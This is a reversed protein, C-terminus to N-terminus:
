PRAALLMKLHTFFAADSFVGDENKEGLAPNLFTDLSAGGFLTDTGADGSLTDVGNEGSLIDNGNGGFLKDTGIGGLITDQGDQGRLLDNGNGGSIIDDGRSGLSDTALDGSGGLITDNGDEGLLVDDDAGGDISDDNAGGRITDNGAAGLLKDNGAQGNLLDDGAGASAQDNGTGGVFTDNGSGGLFTDNAAGGDFTVAFHVRSADFRDTGAGGEFRFSDAFDGLSADLIVSDGSASGVIRVTSIGSALRPTMVERGNANRVHVNDGVQLVTFPGGVKPLTVVLPQSTISPPTPSPPAVPPDFNGVLPIAINSGFQAYLDVGLPTPSFQHDLANVTGFGTALVAPRISQFIYFDSSRTNSDGNRNPVMLGIDDIGDLNFDGAFPRELVGAFLPAQALPVSSSFDIVDDANGDRGDAALDFSFVNSQAHHVGLDDRGDGDFDGVIPLGRLNGVLKTDAATINNDANTDLYWNIGDFLGIEDGPHAANFNGAIPIGNIQLGSVVSYDARGDNNFDLLWRYRNNLLGYSGIRDFGDQTVAGSRNFKGAFQADTDLGMEFVLDRNVFDLNAPDFHFNGNIDISIGGQGVGGIEFRSDITFRSSFDGGPTGDGSPFTPTEQPERAHSEGDLANNAPDTISDEVTLTYRDDLLPSFFNLVATATAPAGNVAPNLTAVISSIPIIGNADGRLVYHGPTELVSELVALYGPFNVADRNPLDRLSITLADTRPTPGASPKPSFLDYAPFATISVGSAALQPGQTDILIDLSQVGSVNGAVDEAIVFIRRTGDLGLGLGPENLNVNSTAVWRGNPHQSTGDPPVATVQALLRDTATQLMGDGNLDVYVRVITDAEATGFFTPNEVRTVRDEFTGPFAHVGSDSAADLGDTASTSLGFYVPPVITDVVIELPLSRSGFGTDTPTAPDIMQVRATLFHSGNELVPTTFTYVGQQATATAFGLLTQPATATQGPTTGEDFIAIRYGPALTTGQFPIPIIQDPPTSTADNGPLDNRLAGDDLRFLLTPTNDRTINDFPSRGTDSNLPTNTLTDDGVPTDQLELAYPVPSPDNIVTMTYNNIAAATAGFVRLYYVQGQVVPVRIREDEAFAEGDLNLEANVGGGDNGGFNPGAGAILTGDRDFLEIDLNGNGPLGPRGSPVTPIEEFFVQLDLTGTVQANFRYFDQDAPLGTAADSGPDITPDINIANGAGLHTALFQLNNFEFPDHKFVAAQGGAALVPEAYEIGQFVAELPEANAPGITMSGNDDSEGKRYLVLDGTGADIVGLRDRTFDAGGVVDFLLSNVFADVGLSDAWTVTIVDNGEGAEIRAREVTGVGAVTVLTDTETVGNVTHVLTTAATQNAVIVDNGSRGLILITDFDAGGDFTDAGGLGIMTDEGAGGNITDAGSGGELFDDGAGGDLTADASLFDDGAGGSLSIGVQGEVGDASKITDNGDNGNVTLTDAGAAVNLLRVDYELGLVNVQGGGATSILINDNTNRGNVIVSDADGAAVDVRVHVVETATIDNITITDGGTLSNVNIQEVGHTDVSEAGLNVNLHTPAGAASVLSIADATAAAGFFRLIDADDVGGQIVDSGDGPEWVFQDIGDGGNFFDAGPDDATGSGLTSTDGFLDNGEEGFITDSGAAGILTDNGFGGYITDNSNGGTIIDNGDGAYIAMVGTTAADATLSDNGAGLEFISEILLGTVAVVDNSGFTRVDLRDVGAGINVTGVATVVTGAVTVTDSGETTEVALVDFGGAGGTVTITTASVFDFTPGANSRFSGSGGNTPKVTATDDLATGNIVVTDGGGAGNLLMHETTTFTITSGGTIAITGSDVSAPTFTFTEAAAIGTLSLRDSGITPDGGEVTIPVVFGAVGQSVDIADDGAKGQLTISAVGSYPVAPGNNVSVTLSTAGTGVATIADNGNTGRVTVALDGPLLSDTVSLGEIHDFSVRETGDLIFGGEDSEPGAVFLATTDAMINLVDGAPGIPDGGDVFMPISGSTVNFTDDGGQGNLTLGVYNDTDIILDFLGVIQLDDAGPAAAFLLNATDAEGTDRLNVTLKEDEGVNANATIDEVGTFTVLQSHLASTVGPADIHGAQVATATVSTTDLLGAVNNYTIRDTGAGGDIAVAVNWPLVSTAFPSVTTTDDMDGANFTFSDVGSFSIPVGGSLTFTGAKQGTGTLILNDAVGAVALLTVRGGGNTNVLNVFEFNLFTVPARGQATIQNGVITVPLGNAIFNLTDSGDEADVTIPTAPSPTITFTDNDDATPAVGVSAAPAVLTGAVIVNAGTTDGADDNYDATITITTVAQITTGSLVLINDGARLTVSSGTSQITANSNVTLDDGAVATEGAELLIAAVSTINASITLPSGSHIMVEAGAGIASIPGSVTIGQGAATSGQNSIIVDGGGANSVGTIDLAAPVGATNAIALDGGSTNAANLTAVRTELPDAATGIGGVAIIRLGTGLIDSGAGADADTIIGTSILTISGTTQILDLATAGVVQLYSDTAGATVNIVGVVQLGLPASPTGLVNVQDRAQVAQDRVRASSDRIIAAKEAAATAISKSELFAEATATALTLTSQAAFQKSHSEVATDQLDDLKDEEVKLTVSFAFVAIDAVNKAIKAVSAVAAAGGDGTLPVAQAAGAITEAVTTVIDLALAVGELVLKTVELGNVIADQSSVAADASTSAQTTTVVTAIAAQKAADVIAHGNTFADASTQKAAAEASAGAADAIRFMEDLEAERATPAAGILTTTAAIVNLSPGNGDVIVGTSSRVTVSGTGANLQGITITRDAEVLINGGATKLNGLVAVAVEGIGVATGVQITITGVGSTEITDAADLFVIPGTPTRLVVSRGAAITAMNDVINEITISEADFTLTGTGSAELASETLLLPGTNKFSAGAAGGNATVVVDVNVELPNAVTGIGGPASLDLKKATINVPFTTPTDNNDTIAGAVGTRLKVTDGEATVGGLAINGNTDIDVDAGQGLATANLALDAGTNSVFIGGTTTAATISSSVTTEIKDAATGIKLGTLTVSAATINNGVNNADILDGTATLTVNQGTAILESALTMNGTTSISVAGGTAGSSNLTLAKDNALWLGGGAGGNASLTSVSIELGDGSVGIGGTAVLTLTNGAVNNTVANGDLMAGGSHLTVSGPASILGLTMTGSSSRVDINSGGTSASLTLASAERIFIDGSNTTANLTAVDTDIENGLAGIGTGARLTVTGGRLDVVADSVDDTITGAATVSVAGSGADVVGLQVNGTTTEFTVAASSASLLGTSATYTLPGGTFSITVDGANTKAAVATLGDTETIKIVAATDSVTTRLEAATTELPDAGTGIGSKGTLDVINGTINVSAGNDDLLAGGDSKVTVNGLATIVKIRLSAAPTTVVVENGAGGAVISTVTGAIGQAFFIGGNTTSASFNEVTLEFPDSKQGVAGSAVFNVSRALIDNTAQNSDLISNAGSTITVSDPATVSNVLIPGQASISVDHTGAVPPLIGGDDPDVMIQNSGNLFPTKGFERALVANITLGPGNSDTIFIGGDNTTATLAGIATEIPDALTGIASSTGTTTLSLGNAATLNVAAGNADTIAGNGATLFIFSNGANLTGLPLSGAVNKLAMLGNTTTADLRTAADVELFNSLGVGIANGAGTVNLTIVAGVIDAVDNDAGDTLSNVATFTVNGSATVIGGLNITDFDAALNGSITLINLTVSDTGAQGQINANTVGNPLSALGFALVDDMDGLNVNFNALPAATTDIDLQTNGASLTFGAGVDGTLTITDGGAVVIRVTNAAPSTVAVNDADGADATFSLLDSAATYNVIAPVIRCELREVSLRVRESVRDERSDRRKAKGLKTQSFKKKWRGRLWTTFSFTLAM